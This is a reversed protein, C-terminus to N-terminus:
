EITQSVFLRQWCRTLCKLTVLSHQHKLHAALGGSHAAVGDAVAAGLVLLVRVLLGHSEGEVADDRGVGQLLEERGVHAARIDFDLM